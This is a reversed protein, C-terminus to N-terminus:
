KQVILEKIGRRNPGQISYLGPHTNVEVITAGTPTIAIDWGVLPVGQTLSAAKNIIDLVSDWHPISFGLIVTKTDPHEIFREGYNNIAYSTVIGYVPDIECFIGGAKVNDVVADGVGMRLSAGIINGNMTVIRITNIAKPYLRNMKEHQIILEEIVADEKEICEM